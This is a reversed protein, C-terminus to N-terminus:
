FLFIASHWSPVRCVNRPRTGPVRCFMNFFYFFKGLAQPQCEVFYTKFFYFFNGLAPDLPCEVFCTKFFFNASHRPSASPLIHKFFTFFFITSHMCRASPLIHKLFIFFNGLAHTQYEAFYTKFFIFFFKGLALRSASPLIQRCTAATGPRGCKASHCSQLKASHLIKGLAASPLIHSQWTGEPVRCLGTKWYHVLPM